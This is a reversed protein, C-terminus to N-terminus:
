TLGGINPEVKSGITIVANDEDVWGDTRENTGGDMRGDMWGDERCGDERCGDERCGDERCGDM